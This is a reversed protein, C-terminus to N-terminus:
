EQNDDTENNIEQEEIEENNEKEDEKNNNMLEDRHQEAFRIVEEQTINFKQLLNLVTKDSMFDNNTLYTTALFRLMKDNGMNQAQIPDYIGNKKILYLFGAMFLMIFILICLSVVM